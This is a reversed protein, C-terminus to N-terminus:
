ITEPEGHSGTLDKQKGAGGACPIPKTYWKKRFRYLNGDIRREKAFILWFKGSFRRLKRWRRKVQRLFDM